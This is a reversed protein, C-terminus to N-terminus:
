NGSPRCSNGTAAIPSDHESGAWPCDAASIREVNMFSLLVLCGLLGLGVALFVMAYAAGFNGLHKVGLDLFFGGAMEGVALALGSIVNWLGMFVGSFAPHALRM